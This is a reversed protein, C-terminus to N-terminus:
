SFILLCVTCALLLDPYNNWIAVGSACRKFAENWHLSVSM